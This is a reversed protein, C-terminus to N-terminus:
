GFEIGQTMVVRGSKGNGPMRASRKGAAAPRDSIM